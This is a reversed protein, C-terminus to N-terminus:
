PHRGVWGVVCRQSVEDYDFYIRVCRDPHTAETPKLHHEFIRSARGDNWTRKRQESASNRITQSEGSCEVGRAQLWKVPATGLGAGRRLTTMESLHGLYALVKEPPGASPTLTAVGTKVDAGFILTSSFRERAIQIAEEVTAPPIELEPEIDEPEDPRWELAVRLNSLDAQLARVRDRLEQAELNLKDHAEAYIKALGEWDNSDRLSAREKEAIKTLYDTRIKAMVAPEPVAFASIGLLQRRVQRRFRASADQANGAQALLSDRLWVPNHEPSERRASFPWYIRVAGNFCSWEKGRITTLAWAADADVTAVIALGVLDSALDAPFTETLNRNEYSSVALVPLNRNPHWVVAELERAGSGGEFKYPGVSIPVDGVFWDGYVQVLTRVITPCRIDVQMPGIRYAGGAAQLEVYVCVETGAVCSSVRTRVLANNSPEVLIWDKVYGEDISFLSTEFQAVRGDRLVLAQGKDTSQFEGKGSLWAEVVDGVADFRSKAGNTSEFNAFLAYAAVKQM